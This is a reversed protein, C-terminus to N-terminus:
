QQFLHSHNDTAPQHYIDDMRLGYAVIQALPLSGPSVTCSTLGSATSSASLSVAGVAQFTTLRFRASLQKTTKDNFTATPGAPVLLLRARPQM